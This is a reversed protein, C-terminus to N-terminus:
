DLWRDIAKLFGEVRLSKELYDKFGSQKGREIDSPLANASVAIVM